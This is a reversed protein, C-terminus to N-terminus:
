AAPVAETAAEAAGEVAGAEAAPAAEAGEGGEIDRPPPKPSNEQSETGEATADMEGEMQYGKVSEGTAHAMSLKMGESMVSGKRGSRTTGPGTKNRRKKRLAAADEPSM